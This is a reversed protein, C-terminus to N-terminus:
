ATSSSSRPWEGGGVDPAGPQVILRVGGAQVAVFEAGQQDGGSEPRGGIM